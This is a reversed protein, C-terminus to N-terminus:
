NTKSYNRTFRLLATKKREHNKRNHINNKNKQTTNM